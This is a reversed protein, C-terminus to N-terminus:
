QGLDKRAFDGHIERARRYYAESAEALTDFVGIVKSRGNLSCQAVYREGNRTLSVGRVGTSSKVVKKCRLNEGQTCVRLNSRRNDLGNGNIHDVVMGEPPNMILRHMSQTSSKSSGAIRMSRKAYYTNSKQVGRWSWRGVLSADLADILAVGGRGLDVYGVWGEIKIPRPKKM